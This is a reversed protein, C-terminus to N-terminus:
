AVIVHCGRARLRDLVDEPARNDTILVDVDAISCTLALAIRQIKSADALVITIRARRHLAANVAAGAPDYNTFGASADVGDVGLFAVDINYGSLFSEVTTGVVEHSSSRVEGGAAFVRLGPSSVLDIAINLANTVVTIGQKDTLLRAFETVTTGGTLGIVRADELFELARLAIRRKEPLDQAAKHGLPLDRFAEHRTAGGHTRSVLRQSELLELDRRITATSVAFHKALAAVDVIEKTIVVSVIQTLRQKRQM